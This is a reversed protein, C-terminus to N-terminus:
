MRQLAVKYGRIIEQVAEADAVASEAVRDLYSLLTSQQGGNMRKWLYEIRTSLRRRKRFATGVLDLGGLLREMAMTQFHESRCEWYINAGLYYLACDDAFFSHCCTYTEFDSVKLEDWSKGEFYATEEYAESAKWQPRWEPLKPPASAEFNEKIRLILEDM